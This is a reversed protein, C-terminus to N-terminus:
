ESKVTRSDRARLEDEAETMYRRTRPVADVKKALQIQFVVNEGARFSAEAAALYYDWMRCFREDYLECADNRRANFRARWDRLTDAYHLRLVELDTIILGAREIARSLESLCPIYGGPFIYKVIWPNSVKPGETRAITHILAVGDDHLLRAVHQFYEFLNRPGVHELMGVSVIRDYRESVDRYDKLLFNAKGSTVHSLRKDAIEIQETSLTVGTVNVHAMNALYVALGGWGSGIDLVTLGKELCLKSAIHRKKALQADELSYSPHEYYACSYQMDADLFIRYLRYDLDYHHAVNARARGISNGQQIGWMLLRVFSAPQLSPDLKGATVNAMILAHLDYIDGGELAIRGDVFLEGLALEPDLLLRVAAPATRFVLTLPKGRGDGVRFEHGTATRVTGNGHPAVRSLFLELCKDLLAAM